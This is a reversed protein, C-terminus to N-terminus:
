ESSRSCYLCITADASSDITQSCISLVPVFQSKREKRGQTEANGGILAFVCLRLSAFPIMETTVDKTNNYTRSVSIYFFSM